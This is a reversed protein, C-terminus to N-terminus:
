VKEHFGHGIENLVEMSCGIIRHSEEKFVFENKSM